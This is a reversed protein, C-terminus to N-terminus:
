RHDYKQHWGEALVQKYTSALNEEAEMCGILGSELFRQYTNNPQNEPQSARIQYRSKLVDVLDFIIQQAEPPLTAIDQQIQTLSTM